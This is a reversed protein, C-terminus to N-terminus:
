DGHFQRGFASLYEFRVFQLLDLYEPDSCLQSSLYSFLEGESSIMLLNHSLIHFLVSVPIADLESWALGYFKSSIRGILEDSFLDLTSDRNQSSIFRNAFHEILSIYLNQNSLERYLSVFFDLNAESVQITSGSGLSMFLKFQDNLDRTEVIYEAISPDVSHSLCVRPSLFQALIRPCKYGKGGVIFDFDEQIQDLVINKIAASSLCVDFDTMPISGFVYERCKESM